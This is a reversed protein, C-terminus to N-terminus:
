AARLPPLAGDTVTDLYGFLEAEFRDKRFHVANRRAAKPGFRDADREFREVADALADASQEAFFVGTPNSGDGLGRVTETAGGRGFAIVPCGCAQAELPVIGFDEEGPFLLAKARRLHDVFRPLVRVDRNGGAELSTVSIGRGRLIGGVEGVPAISVVEPVVRRRAALGPCLAALLLPVGGRHLDTILFTVPVPM